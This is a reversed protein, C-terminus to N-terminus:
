LHFLIELNHEGGGWISDEIVWYEPKIFIVRRQHLFSQGSKLNIKQITSVFDFNETTIVKEPKGEARSQWEFIDGTQSRNESDILVVNHARSERFYDRWKKDLTYCYTGIDQIFSQKGLALEFSAFDDHSHGCEKWGFPGGDFILYKDKEEWGSRMVLFGSNKFYKSSQNPKRQEMKQYDEISEKGLLWITEESLDGAM